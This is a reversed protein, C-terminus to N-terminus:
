HRRIHLRHQIRHFLDLFVAEGVGQQIEKFVIHLFNPIAETSIYGSLETTIIKLQQALEQKAPRLMQIVM